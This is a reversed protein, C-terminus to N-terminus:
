FIAHFLFLHTPSKITLFNDIGLLNCETKVSKQVNKKTKNKYKIRINIFYNNYIYIDHSMNSVEM